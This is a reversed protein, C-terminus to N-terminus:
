ALGLWTEGWCSPTVNGQSKQMVIKVNDGHIFTLCFRAELGQGHNVVESNSPLTFLLYYLISMKIYSCEKNEHKLQPGRCLNQVSGQHARDEEVVSFGMRLVEIKLVHKSGFHTEVNCNIIYSLHSIDVLPQEFQKRPPCPIGITRGRQDADKSKM